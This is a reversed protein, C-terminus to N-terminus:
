ASPLTKETYTVTAEGCRHVDVAMADIAVSSTAIGELDGCALQQRYSLGSCVEACSVALRGFHGREEGRM